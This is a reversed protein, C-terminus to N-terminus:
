TDQISNQQASYMLTYTMFAQPFLKMSVHEQSM